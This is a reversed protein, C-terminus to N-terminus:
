RNAARQRECCVGQKEPNPGSCGGGVTWAGMYQSPTQRNAEAGTRWRKILRQPRHRYPYNLRQGLYLAQCKVPYRNPKVMSSTTRILIKVATLFPLYSIFNPFSRNKQSRSRMSM